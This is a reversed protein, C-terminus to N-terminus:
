RITNPDRRLRSSSSLGGSKTDRRHMNDLKKRVKPDQMSVISPDYKTKRYTKGKPQDRRLQKWKEALMASSTMRKLIETQKTSFTAFPSTKKPTTPVKRNRNIREIEFPSKITMETQKFIQSSTHADSANTNLTPLVKTKETTRFSKFMKEGDQFSFIKKIKKIIYQGHKM